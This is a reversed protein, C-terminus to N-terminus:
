ILLFGDVNELSELTDFLLLFLFNPVLFSNVLVPGRMLNAAALSSSNDRLRLVMYYERLLFVCFSSISFFQRRLSCLNFGSNEGTFKVQESEIALRWIQKL